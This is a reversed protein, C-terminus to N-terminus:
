KHGLIRVVVTYRLFAETCTFFDSLTNVYTIHKKKKKQGFLALADDVQQTEDVKM